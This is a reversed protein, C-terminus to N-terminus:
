ERREMRALWAKRWRDEVEDEKGDTYETEDDHTPKDHRFAFWMMSMDEEQSDEGDATEGEEPNHSLLIQPIKTHYKEGCQRATLLLSEVEDL